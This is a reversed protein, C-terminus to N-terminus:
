LVKQDCYYFDVCIEKIIPVIPYSLCFRKTELHWVYDHNVTNCEARSICEIYRVERYLSSFHNEQNEYHLTKKNVYGETNRVGIDCSSKRSTVFNTIDCSWTISHKFNKKLWWARYSLTLFKSASNLFFIFWIYLNPSLILRTFHTLTMNTTIDLTSQIPYLYTIEVRKLPRVSSFSLFQIGTWPWHFTCRQNWATMRQSWCSRSYSEDVTGNRLSKEHDVGESVWFLSM